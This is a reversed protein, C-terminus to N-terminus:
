SAIGLEANLALVAAAPDAAQTIPRGVVLHDAGAARAATPTAIRSQDDASAGAPRIGPTVTLFGRGCAAKVLTIEQPACVVGDVGAAQALRALRLVQEAPSANFGIEALAAADLSTLVTVATLLPRPSYKALAERAAELMARGGSAHVNVMWVGLDAAARCAGAVTNPIDHFKLDLFIEFGRALLPELIAPGSRTFLAKGVKLRCHRPDLRSALAVAEAPAAFDLAVILPSICNSM